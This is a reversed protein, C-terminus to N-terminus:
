CQKESCWKTFLNRTQATLRQEWSCACTCPVACVLRTRCVKDQLLKCGPGWAWVCAFAPIPAPFESLATWSPVLRRYLVHQLQSSFCRSESIPPSAALGARPGALHERAPTRRRTKSKRCSSQAGGRDSRSVGVSSPVGGEALSAQRTGEEPSPRPTQAGAEASTRPNLRPHGHAGEGGESRM